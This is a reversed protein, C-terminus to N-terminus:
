RKEYQESYYKQYEGSKVNKWWSEHSKFWEVTKALGEELTVTPQWGLESKIKDFNIAYRRDHGPRDKVYEIMSEDKGLLALLKKVIWLNEKEGNGGVCYTEGIKGQRLILDIARCHDEVYLWDRVQGGDGYVPVSKGELLNTIALPILKEPFHYPGYNNSCNSITVPLGYTHAYSRVLHDSSAKSASYPSRPDYPTTESFAPADPALSGFVEDTSVHHLRKNDKRAAELLTFTGLINTRVFAEPGLISRDVHSEAAFHVVADCEAVLSDVLAADTIDGKVFRYRQDDKLAALNELNGAYTLADLNVIETEPQTGLIHHIFNSGIFGAGGTILLKM